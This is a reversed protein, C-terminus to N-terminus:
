KSKDASCLSSLNLDEQHEDGPTKKLVLHVAEQSGITEIRERAYGARTFLRLSAFNNPKVYADINRVATTRFLNDTATALVARGYGKGRFSAALSISVTASAGDIQFRVQGAPVGEGDVALYLVANPDRLRSNFWEL